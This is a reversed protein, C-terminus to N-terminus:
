LSLAALGLEHWDLNTQYNYLSPTSLFNCEFFSKTHTHLPPPPPPPNPKYNADHRKNKEEVTAFM